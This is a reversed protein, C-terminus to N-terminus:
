SWLLHQEGIIAIEQNETAVCIDLSIGCAAIQQVANYLQNAKEVKIKDVGSLCDIHDPRDLSRLPVPGKRGGPLPRERARSATGCSPAIWIAVIFAAYKRIYQLLSQLQEPDALEFECIDVGCSRESSHDVAIGKFGKAGAVKTSRASGACIELVVLDEINVHSFRGGAHSEGKSSASNIYVLGRRQLNSRRKKM